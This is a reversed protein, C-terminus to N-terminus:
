SSNNFTQKQYDDDVKNQMQEESYNTNGNQINTITKDISFIIENISIIDGMEKLVIKVFKQLKNSVQKMSNCEELMDCYDHQIKLSITPKMMIAMKMKLKINNFENM